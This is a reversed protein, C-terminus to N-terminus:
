EGKSWAKMELSSFSKARSRATRRKKVVVAMALSGLVTEARAGHLKQCGLTRRPQAPPSTM